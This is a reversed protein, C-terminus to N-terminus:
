TMPAAPARPVPPMVTDPPDKVCVAPPAIGECAKVIIPLESTVKAPFLERVPMVKVFLPPLAGVTVGVPVKVKVPPMVAVVLLAPVIEVMPVPLRSKFPVAAKAIETPAVKTLPTSIAGQCAPKSIEETMWFPPIVLVPAPSKFSLPALVNVPPTVMLAPPRTSPALLLPLRKFSVTVLPGSPVPLSVRAALVVIAAVAAYVTAFLTVKRPSKVKLPVLLIVRFPVVVRGAAHFTAMVAGCIVTVIPSALPEVSVSVIRFDPNPM